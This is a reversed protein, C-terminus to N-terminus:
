RRLQAARTIQRNLQELTANSAGAAQARRLRNLEAAPIGARRAM